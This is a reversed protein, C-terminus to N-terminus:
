EMFSSCSHTKHADDYHMEDMSYMLRREGTAVCCGGGGKYEGYTDWVDGIEFYRCNACCKRSSSSSSSSTYYSGNERAEYERETERLEEKTRGLKHVKNAFNQGARFAMREWFTM